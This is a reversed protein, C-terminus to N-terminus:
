MSSDSRKWALVELSNWLVPSMCLVFFALACFLLLPTMDAGHLSPYFLFSLRGASAAGLAPLACGLLFLCCLSDRRHWCFLAYSTRGPLGYGRSKMADSLQVANELAHRLQTRIALFARRLAERKTQPAGHLCTQAEMTRAFSQRMAPIMRLSLRLLLSLSPAVRSFLFISRESTMVATYCRFWVLVTFLLLSAFGGYLLSEATCPNGWPFYFLIHVGQHNFLPNLVAALLCVPLATKLLFAGGKERCFLAHSCLAGILSALRFLPHAVLLTGGIACLFFLLIVGPHLRSVVDTRHM